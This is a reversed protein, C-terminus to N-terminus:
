EEKRTCLIFFVFFAYAVHNTPYPHRVCCDLAAIKSGNAMMAKGILLMTIQSKYHCNTCVYLSDGM